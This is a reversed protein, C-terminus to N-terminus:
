NIRRYRFLHTMLLLQSKDLPPGIGVASTGAGGVAVEAQPLQQQIRSIPLLRTLCGVFEMIETALLEFRTQDQIHWLYQGSTSDYGRPTLGYRTILLSEQNEFVGQLSALVRIAVSRVRDDDLREDYRELGGPAIGLSQGWRLLLIQEVELKCIPLKSDTNHVISSSFTGFRQLCTTFLGTVASGWDPTPVLEAVDPALGVSGM